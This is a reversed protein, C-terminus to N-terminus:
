ASQNRPRYLTQLPIGEAIRPDYLREAVRHEQLSVDGSVIRLVHRATLADALGRGGVM